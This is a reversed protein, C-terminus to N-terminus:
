QELIAELASEASIEEIIIGKSYNKVREAPAGINFVALARGMQMIEESTFSFTEPWISPILFVDIENEIVINELEKREFYGTVKLYPSKLSLDAIEGIVVIRINKEDRKEILKLMSEIIRSGKPAHIRGLVGITFLEGKEKEPLAKIDGVRHPILKMKKSKLKPYAKHIIARSASSFCIIEECNDLFESWTERWFEINENTNFIEELNNKALCERCEEIDPVGCYKEEYNLLNYSPCVPFYDHIATRLKSLHIKRLDLALQLISAYNDFSVLNNIFIDRYPMLKIIRYLKQYTDPAFQIYRNKYYFNFDYSASQYNYKLLFLKEGSAQKESIKKDRYQNAGGGLNHDIWLEPKTADLHACILVLVYQYSKDLNAQHLYEGVLKNKKSIKQLASDYNKYEKPQTKSKIFRSNLDPRFSYRAGNDCEFELDFIDKEPDFDVPLAGSVEIGSVILERSFFFMEKLERAQSWDRVEGIKKNNVLLANNKINDDCVIKGRINIKGNQTIIYDIDLLFIGSPKKKMKNLKNYLPKAVRRRKSDRPFLKNIINLKM